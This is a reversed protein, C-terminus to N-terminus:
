LRASRLLKRSKGSAKGSKSAPEHHHHEPGFHDIIHGATYGYSATYYDDTATTSYLVRNKRLRNKRLRRHEHTEVVEDDSESSSGSKSGKGGKSGKGSKGSGGSSGSWSGSSGGSWKGSDDHDSGVWGEGDEESVWSSPSWAPSYTPYDTEWEEQDPHDVVWEAHTWGAHDHHEEEHEDHGDNQWQETEEHEYGDHQWAEPTPETHYDDTPEYHDDEKVVDYGDNHWQEPEPAPEYGDNHWQEPAPEPEYHEPEYGDHQWAVVPATTAAYGDNHWEPEYAAPEPEHYPVPEPKHYLVPTDTPPTYYDPTHVPADTPKYYDPTPYEPKPANTPKYEPKSVPKDTPKYDSIKDETPFNTKVDPVPAPTVEPISPTPVPTQIIDSPTPVQTDIPFSPTPALTKVNGGQAPSPGSTLEEKIVITLTATDCMDSTDCAEYECQDSGIFGNSPPTYVVETLSLSIICEGSAAPSTMSKIVLNDGSDNELVAIFAESTGPPLNIVDDVAIVTAAQRLDQGASTADKDKDKKDRKASAFSPLSLSAALVVFPLISNSYKM